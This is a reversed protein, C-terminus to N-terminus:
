HLPQEPATGARSDASQSLSDMYVNLVAFRLYEVLEMYSEESDEDSEDEDVDAEAIAGIDRLVEGSDESLAASRNEAGASVQAFGALFGQCWAAMAATRQVLDVEDDPLLPFFTFEEDQLAIATVTYLQMLRDSLEGYVALDLSQLLADLGFEPQEDAGAALLGTLCGHLKSPSAELGQELLHNALEEFDFVGVETSLDDHM